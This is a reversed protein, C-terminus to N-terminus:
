RNRRDTNNNDNKNMIVIEEGENNTLKTEESEIEKEPHCRSFPNVKSEIRTLSHGMLHAIVRAFAFTLPFISNAAFVSKECTAEMVISFIVHM